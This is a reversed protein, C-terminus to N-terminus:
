RIIAHLIVGVIGTLINGLFVGWMITSLKFPHANAVFVATAVPNDSVKYTTPAWYQIEKPSLSMGEDVTHSIISDM